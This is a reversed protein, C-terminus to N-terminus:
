GLQNELCEKHYFHDKCRGMLVVDMKAIGYEQALGKEMIERESKQEVDDYLECM